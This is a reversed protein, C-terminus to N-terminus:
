NNNVSFLVAVWRDDTLIKVVRLERKEYADLVSKLQYDLFGSLIIYSDPKILSTIQPALAVLPTALINSVILDFKINISSNLPESDSNQYFNIKSNNCIKNNKAIEVATEEIDCGYIKAQPWLKESVFSLIGSGTGLDFVSNVPLEKLSNIAKICLATTAHEGTGFARSAEIYIPIKSKPISVKLSKPTIFFQEIVIPKLQKQYEAVWDKDEILELQLESELQLNNILAYENLQKGLDVMAPKNKYLVELIWLDHPKSDITSSKIESSSIGLIEEPFFEEFKNLYKYKAIFSIKYIVKPQSFLNNM